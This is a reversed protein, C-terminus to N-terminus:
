KLENNNEPFCRNLFDRLEILEKDEVEFGIRNKLYCVMSFIEKGVMLSLEDQYERLNTSISLYNM